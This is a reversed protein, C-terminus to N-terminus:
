QLRDEVRGISEAVLCEARERMERAGAERGADFSPARLADMAEHMLKRTPSGAEYTSAAVRLRDLLTLTPDTM